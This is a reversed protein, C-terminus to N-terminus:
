RGLAERVADHVAPRLARIGDGERTPHVRNTLLAVVVDVDPDGWLSTGTFGLHGFTRPGMRAGASSGQPSRTDWGLRHTGGERARLMSTAVPDEDRLADLMAVGRECLALASGFLGAHGAVGGLAFANEDHVEGCVVRGRWACRETPACAEGPDPGFRLTGLVEAEDLAAVLGGFRAALLEGALIYGLDSYVARETPGAPEDVVAQLMAARTAPEGALAPDTGVYLPRWAALGARHSLLDDLGCAGVPTGETFALTDAVPAHLDLAGRHALRAAAWATFPKTLSALDYVTRATVPTPADWALTGRAEVHHRWVDGERWSVALSAGPTVRSAIARDLCAGVARWPDNM